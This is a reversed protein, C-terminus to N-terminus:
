SYIINLLTQLTFNPEDLTSVAWMFAMLDGTRGGPGIGSKALYKMRVRSFRLGWYRDWDPDNGIKGEAEAKLAEQEWLGFMKTAEDRVAYAKPAILRPMKAIIKQFNKDFEWLWREVDPWITYIHSGYLGTISAHTWTDKVFACLDLTQWVYSSEQDPPFIKDIDECLTQVFLNTLTELSDGTLHLSSMHHLDRLVRRGDDKIKPNETVTQAGMGLVEVDEKSGGVVRFVLLNFPHFIFVKSRRYIQSALKADFILYM